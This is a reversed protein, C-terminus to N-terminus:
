LRVRAGLDWFGLELILIREPLKNGFELIM